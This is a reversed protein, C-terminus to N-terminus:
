NLKIDLSLLKDKGDFKSTGLFIKGSELEIVHKLIPKVDEFIKLSDINKISVWEPLGEISGTVARHHSRASCVFMMVNKGFFNNVHVIGRLQVDTVDLGSEEKIEKIANELVGEGEEIHGGIPDYIGNWDKTENGKLLLVDSGNFVFCMTRPTVTHHDSM